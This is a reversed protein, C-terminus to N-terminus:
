QTARRHHTCKLRREMRDGDVLEFLTEVSPPSKRWIDWSQRLYAGGGCRSWGQRASSLSGVRAEPMPRAFGQRCPKVVDGEPAAANDGRSGRVLDVCPIPM